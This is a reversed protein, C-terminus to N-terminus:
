DWDCDADIGTAERVRAEVVSRIKRARDLDATSQQYQSVLSSLRPTTPRIRIVHGAPCGEIGGIDHVEIDVSGYSPIGIKISPFGIKMTRVGAPSAPISGSRTFDLDFHGFEDGPRPVASFDIYIIQPTM